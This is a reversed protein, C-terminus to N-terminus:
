LLDQFILPYFCQPLLCPLGYIIRCEFIILFFIGTSRSFLLWLVFSFQWSASFSILHWNTAAWSYNTVHPNYYHPYKWWWFHNGQQTNKFNEPSLDSSLKTATGLVEIWRFRIFIFVKELIYTYIDSHPSFIIYLQLPVCCCFERSCKCILIPGAARKNHMTRFYDWIKGM